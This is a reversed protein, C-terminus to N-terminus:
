FIQDVDKLNKIVFIEYLDILTQKDTDSMFFIQWNSCLDHKKM